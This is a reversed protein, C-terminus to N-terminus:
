GRDCGSRVLHAHLEGVVAAPRALAAGHREVEIAVLVSLAADGGGPREDEGGVLGGVDSTVACGRDAVVVVAFAADEGAGDVPDLDIEIPVCVVGVVQDRGLLAQADRHRALLSIAASRSAGPPPASLVLFSM